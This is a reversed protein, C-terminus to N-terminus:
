KEIQYNGHKAFRILIAPLMLFDIILAMVITLATIKAMGSNMAFGSQSLIGFGFVLVITTVILAIGVTNFAYRIADPRPLGKDRLARLYKILFHVSDDVVVGLSTATVTAAPMGVQGVTWALTTAAHM